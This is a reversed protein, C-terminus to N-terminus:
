PRGRNDLREQLMRNYAARRAHDAQYQLTAKEIGKLLTIDEQLEQIVPKSALQQLAIKLEASQKESEKVQSALQQMLASSEERTKKLLQIKERLIQNAEQIKLSAAGREGELSRLQCIEKKLKEQQAKRQELLAELEAQSRQVAALQENTEISLKETQLFRRTLKTSKEALIAHDESLDRAM